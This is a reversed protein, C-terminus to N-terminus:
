QAAQARRFIESMQQRGRTLTETSLVGGHDKGPLVSVEADSGLQKLTEALRAVAGELYFTDLGGAVVHLKGRLKDALQPWERELKLRIDYKQWARAIEPDVKGTQRDWMKCPQADGGLPSFVAEFSRLQGGRGLVDDMQAFADYWLVPQTGQRAIPRRANQADRYLSLPEEAYLDVQQWDRFDVPDPAYSWVGGFVDPYSVQLWLSSWGGSSHGTVFRATSSFVTRFNADIYPILESVLAQARPGNTASDAYVHHGWKCNGSLYVRIFEAEGAGPTPPAPLGLADRHSGGFGPIIYMVPYRREKDEAYSAPLVVAAAEIVQRRHFKSLLESELRIERRWDTEAFERAQVVHTLRLELTQPRPARWDLEVVDSYLNGPGYAHNQTDLNVDLLAQVQYIGPPLKSLPAPFSDARDDVERPMAPSFDRVDGGCFPEPGFWNPGFRPEPQKSRSLFVYLRGALPEKAVAPDISVSFALRSGAEPEAAAQTALLGSLSVGVCQQLFVRRKISQTASVFSDVGRSGFM